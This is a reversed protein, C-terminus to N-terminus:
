GTGMQVTGGLKRPRDQWSGSSVSKLRFRGAELLVSCFHWICLTRQPPPAPPRGPFKLNEGVVEVSTVAPHLPPQTVPPLESLLFSFEALLTVPLKMQM